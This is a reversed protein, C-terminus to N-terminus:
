RTRRFPMVKPWVLAVDIVIPLRAGDVAYVNVTIATSESPYALAGLLAPWRRRRLRRDLALADRM